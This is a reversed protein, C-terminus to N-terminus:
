PLVWKAAAQYASFKVQDGASASVSNNRMGIGIMMFLDIGAGMVVAGNRSTNQTRINSTDLVTCAASGTHRGGYLGTAMVKIGSANGTMAATSTVAWVGYDCFTAQGSDIHAAAGMGGITNPTTSTPDACPGSVIEFDADLISRDISLLSVWNVLDDTTMRVANINLPKHWRPAEHNSSSGWNYISNAGFANFQVTNFGGSYIVGNTGYSTDVVNDPDELTWGDTLDIADGFPVADLSVGGGGGGATEGPFVPAIPM